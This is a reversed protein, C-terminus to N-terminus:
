LPADIHQLALDAFFKVNMAELLSARFLTEKDGAGLKGNRLRVNHRFQCPYRKCDKKFNTPDAQHFIRCACIAPNPKNPPAPAPPAM